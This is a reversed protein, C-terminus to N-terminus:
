LDQGPVDIVDENSVTVECKASIGLEKNMAIIEAKGVKKGHVKGQNDVTAITTDSSSWTLPPIIANEPYANVSLLVDTGVKLNYARYNLMIYSVEPAPVVVKCTASYKGDATSFTIVAEGNSKAYIRNRGKYTLTDAVQANSSSIKLEPMQATKPLVVLSYNYVYGVKAQLIESPVITLAKVEVPVVEVECSASEGSSEQIAKVITKGLGIATVKGQEVKAVKEDESIWKIADTVEGELKLVVAEKPHLTVNTKDLKLASKVRVLCKASTEGVRAIISTEGQKLGKVVGNHVSAIEANSSEWQIDKNKATEPLVKADITFQEGVKIDKESHSLVISRAIPDIISFSVSASKGSCKATISTTGVALGKVLGSQTVTAVKSDSSSWEIVIDSADKPTVIAKLQIEQNIDLQNNRGQPLEIEIKEVVIKPKADKKCGVLGMSTIILLILLIRFKKCM